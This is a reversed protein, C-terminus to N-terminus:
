PVLVVAPSNVAQQGNVRLIVRYTGPPMATEATIQLQMQTQTMPGPPYVFTDFGRVVRGERYLAVFVDDTTTGLLIGTMDINGVVLAPDAPSPAVAAPVATDLRPLLGGVLVNSTRRRGSPLTQVVTVPHSGASLLNGSALTQSVTYTLRDPQQAIVPLEVAGLRVTLGSLHLDTGTITVQAGVGFKAPSLATLVPGLSPLVAAQIGQEGIVTNTQYNIGVLLSQAPPEGSAIMVPRVQFSVSCRYREESGQMLKSLLDSSAEEFSLKLMDPNDELAELLTASLGPATLSFFNLDHLVRIGQGLIEHAEASDSEGDEDFATLLYRLVLWLPDPQGADLSVNKLYEDFHIEYLFLNLRPNNTNTPPEPRGVSIDAIGAGLLNALLRDHLLQTVAGIARGSETLAM